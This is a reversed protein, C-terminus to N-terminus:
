SPLFKMLENVTLLYLVIRITEGITLALLFRPLSLRLIGATYCIIDTSVLPLFSWGTIIFFGYKDLKTKVYLFKKEHKERIYSEINMFISFYYILIATTLIGSMTLLILALPHDGLVIAGALVLPSNPIIFFGLLIILLFYIVASYYPYEQIVQALFEPSFWKPNAILFIVLTILLLLWILLIGKRM